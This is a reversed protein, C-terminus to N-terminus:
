STMRGLGVALACRPCATAEAVIESGVGGPDAKWEDRDRARGPKRMAHERRPYTKPRSEIVVRTSPTGPPVLAGCVECTFVLL